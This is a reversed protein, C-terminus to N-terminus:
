SDYLPLSCVGVSFKLDNKIENDKHIQIEANLDGCLNGWEKM